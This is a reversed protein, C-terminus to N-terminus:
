CFSVNQQHLFDLKGLSSFFFFFNSRFITEKERGHVVLGLFPKAIKPIAYQSKESNASRIPKYVLDKLATLKKHKDNYMSAPVYMPVIIHHWTVDNPIIIIYLGRTLTIKGILPVHIDIAM